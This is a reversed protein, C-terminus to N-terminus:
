FTYRFRAVVTEIASPDGSRRTFGCTTGTGDTGCSPTAAEARLASGTFMYGGVLDLTMGPAFKYTLGVDIETGLYNRRGTRPNCAITGGAFTGLGAAPGAGVGVGPTGPRCPTLGATSALGHTDVSEATWNANAKGYFSFAPTLAYTVRTGIKGMGYKDYGITVDPNLAAAQARVQNFYDVGNGWIEAWGTYYGADTVLPQYYRITRNADRVDAGVKMGPTYVTAVELLLPGAQFGGRVDAIWAREQQNKAGCGVTAPNTGSAPTFCGGGAGSFKGTSSILGREGFQYYFTPDLSFPGSRWRADFGVTFRNEESGSPFCGGAFGPPPAIGSTPFTNNSAAGGAFVAAGEVPAIVPNAQPTCATGGSGALGGRAVRPGSYSNTTSGNLQIWSFMPRIDLGKFPTFEPDAIIAFDQGRLFGDGRGTSRSTIFVYDLNFKAAPSFTATYHFGPFDSQAYVSVKYHVDFPQAGVRLRSAWPMWPLDFETYAWKIELLRAIDTNLTSGASDAFRLSGNNFGQDSAQDRNSSIQGYSYDFEMGLVFKTTGVEATIDPRVRTRADVDTEKRHLDLDNKSFNSSFSLVNDVLGTITVKPQQALVPPALVAVTAVLALVATLVRRM